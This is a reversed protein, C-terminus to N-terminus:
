AAILEGYSRSSDEMIGMKREYLPKKCSIHKALGALTHTGILELSHESNAILCCPIEAM